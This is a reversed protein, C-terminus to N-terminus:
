ARRAPHPRRHRPPDMGRVPCRRRRRVSLRLGPRPRSRAGPPHEVWRPQCVWLGGRRRLDRDHIGLLQLAGARGGRGRGPLDSQVTPLQPRAAAPVSGAATTEAKIDALAMLGARMAEVTGEPVRAELERDIAETGRWVAEVVQHGRETLELTIRRRDSADPNRELYGRNVLIDVAQSVAQKTVGLGAHLNERLGGGSHVGFLIFAGNRPLDEVGIAQLQARTSRAYAGRAARMLTPTALASRDAPMRHVM